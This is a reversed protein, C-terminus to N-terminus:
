GAPPEQDEGMDRMTSIAFVAMVDDQFFRAEVLANRGRSNIVRGEIEFTPGVIPEFYDCRMNITSLFGRPSTPDGRLTYLSVFDVYTGTFGGFLQGRPNLLSSPLHAEIRLLGPERELVRWEWAELVDGAAHGRNVLRGEPVEEAWPRDPHLAEGSM